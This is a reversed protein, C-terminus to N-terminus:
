FIIGLKFKFIHNTIKDSPQDQFDYTTDMFNNEYGLGFVLATSGGLSYEIGANLHYGLNLLRVEETINEGEIDQSPIDCKAGILVKPDLGVNTFFTIYGIQNTRLKLGLPISLYQTHYTINDGIFITTEDNKFRIITTDSYNLNGSSNLLFIGTSFAYNESFYRDFSLGFSFGPRLGDNVSERTDSSYWSILPDAWLSFQIDQALLTAPAVHILMLFLIFRTQSKQFLNNNM